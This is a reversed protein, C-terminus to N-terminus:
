ISNIMINFFFLIVVKIFENHMNEIQKHDYKITKQTNDKLFAEYPSNTEM